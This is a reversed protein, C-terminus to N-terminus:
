NQGHAFTVSTISHDVGLNLVLDARQPLVDLNWRTLREYHQIFRAMQAASMVKGPVPLGKETYTKRLKEEQLSRWEYVQEFNPVRLFILQDLLNYWDRYSTKLQQNVYKRWNADADEEQELPNCPSILTSDPQAPTGVCWGEFLILDVPDSVAQWQLQPACDDEAKDFQPLLVPPDSDTLQRLRSLTSIGLEVNHTGPVGRTKLLPHQQRALQQRAERSLYFDDLSLCATKLGYLHQLCLSLFHTLTSKGTGQAGCIGWIPTKTSQYEAIYRATPLIGRELTSWFSEPLKHAAIQEALAERVVGTLKNPKM